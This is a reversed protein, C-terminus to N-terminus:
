LVHPVAGHREEELLHGPSEDQRGLELWRGGVRRPFLVLGKHIATGV